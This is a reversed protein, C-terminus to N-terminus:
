GTGQAFWKQRPHWVVRLPDEVYYETNMLVVLFPLGVQVALPVSAVVVM